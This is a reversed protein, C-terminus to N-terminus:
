MRKKPQNNQPSIKKNYVIPVPKEEGGDFSFIISKIGPYAAQKKNKGDPKSQIKSILGVNKDDMARKMQEPLEDWSKYGTMHIKISRPTSNITSMEGIREMIAMATCHPAKGADDLTFKEQLSNTKEDYVADAGRLNREGLVVQKSYDWGKVKSIKPDSASLEHRGEDDTISIVSHAAEEQSSAFGSEPWKEIDYRGGAQAYLPATAERNADGLRIAATAAAMQKINKKTPEGGFVASRDFKIQEEASHTSNWDKVSKELNDLGTKWSVASALKDIGSMSKTHGYVVMAVQEPQLGMSKIADYNQLVHIASNRGHAKRLDTGDPEYHEGAGDMGTDHFQASVMLLKRDVPEEYIKNKGKIKDIADAAQMSKEIVQDIHDPGHSTYTWLHTRSEKKAEQQAADYYQKTLDRAKNLTEEAEARSLGPLHSFAKKLKAGSSVSSAIGSAGAKAGSKKGGGATLGPTTVASSTKGAKATKKSGSKQSKSGSFDKGKLTGGGGALAVGNEDLPVHHGEETTIWRDPEGADTRAQMLAIDAKRRNQRQRLVEITKRLKNM